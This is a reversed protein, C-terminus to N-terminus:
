CPLGDITCIVVGSDVILGLWMEYWLHPDMGIMHRTQAARRQYESKLVMQNWEPTHGRYQRVVSVKSRYKTYLEEKSM